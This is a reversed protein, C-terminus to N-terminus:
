FSTKIAANAVLEKSGMQKYVCCSVVFKGDENKCQFSESLGEMSDM